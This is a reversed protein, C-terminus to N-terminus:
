RAAARRPIGGVRDPRSREDPRSNIRGRIDRALPTEALFNELEEVSRNAAYPQLDARLRTLRIRVRASYLHGAQQITTRVLAGAALPDAETTRLQAGAQLLGAITRNRRRSRPATALFRRAHEVARRGQGLDHCCHAIQLDAESADFYAMWEPDGRHGTHQLAEEMEHLARACAAEEGLSALARARAAALRTRVAPTAEGRTGVTAICALELAHGYQGLLNAHHSLLILAHAALLRDSGLHAFTLSQLFYHRALHHLAADEAMAGAQATFRAVAGFLRQGRKATYDSQLLPGIESHLYQVASTRAHAGGFEDDLEAFLVCTRDIAAIDTDSM